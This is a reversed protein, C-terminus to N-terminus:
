FAENFERDTEFNWFEVHQGSREGKVIFVWEIEHDADFVGKLKVDFDFCKM